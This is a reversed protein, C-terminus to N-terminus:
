GPAPRLHILQHAMAPISVDLEIKDGNLTFSAGEMAIKQSPLGIDSLRFELHRVVPQRELNFCDIVSEKLDPLTHVHITEDLGYFDGQAYFRKLPLYTKMALKQAEWVAPDTPKGGM